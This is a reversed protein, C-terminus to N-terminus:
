YVLLYNPHAVAERTNPVQGMRYMFPHLPLREATEEIQAQLKLAAPMNRLGIFEFIADLDDLASERWILSLM